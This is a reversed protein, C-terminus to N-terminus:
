KEGRFLENVDKVGDPLKVVRPPPYAADTFIKTVAVANDQGAADGDFAIFVKLGDFYPLWAPKFGKAGMTGVALKGAQALTLTDTAGECIFVPERKERARLLADANYPVRNATSTNLFRFRSDNAKVDRGQVDVPEGKWLFPFLLRHNFFALRGEKNLLGYQGLIDAGFRDLLGDNARQWDALYVLKASAQTAPTIGKVRQLWEGATTTSAPVAYDLLASFVAVRLSAPKRPPQPRGVRFLGTTPDKYLRADFDPTLAECYAWAEAYTPFDAVKDDPLLLATKPYVILPTSPLSYGLGQAEGPAAAGLTPSPTDPLRAAKPYVPAGNGQAKYGLGKGKAQDGSKRYDGILPLGSKRKKNFVKVETPQLGVRAALYRIAQGRNYNKVKEVLGIADAVFDCTFCYVHDDYLRLNPTGKDNHNPCFRFKGGAPTMGLDDAVGDIPSRRKVEEIDFFPVEKKDGADLQAAKEWEAVSGTTPTAVVDLVARGKEWDPGAVAKLLAEDVVIQAGVPQELYSQRYPRDDFAKGKHPTTGYVKVIRNADFLKTDVEVESTSFRESLARLVAKILLESRDDNPLDVRYLLHGGNASMGKLPAPWQEGDLWQAVTDRLQLAIKLEGDTSPCKLRKLQGNGDLMAEGASDREILLEGTAPDIRTPDLDVLLWKRREVQTKNIAENVNEQLRKTVDVAPTLPNLTVYCASVRGDYPALQAAAAEPDNFVGEVTGAAGAGIIRVEFAEGTPHLLELSEAVTLTTVMVL